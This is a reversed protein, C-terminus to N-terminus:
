TSTAAMSRIVTQNLVRDSERASCCAFFVALLRFRSSVCTTELFTTVSPQSLLVMGVGELARAFPSRTSSSFPSRTGTSASTMSPIAMTSSARTVPSDAGTRFAGPSLRMPPDVTTLSVM